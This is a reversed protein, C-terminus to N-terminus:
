SRSDRQGFPVTILFTILLHTMSVAFSLCPPLAHHHRHSRLAIQTKFYGAQTDEAFLGGRKATVGVRQYTKLSWRCDRESRPLDPEPASLPGSNKNNKLFAGCVCELM